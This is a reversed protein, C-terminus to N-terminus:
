LTYHPISVTLETGNTDSDITLEGNLSQVRQRISQLGMSDSSGIRAAKAMGKGNDKVTLVLVKEEAYILIDVETAKAHKIINTISEQVVRLLIIKADMDQGTLSGNDIHINKQYRNDPLASDTITHILQEFSEENATKGAFFWEHSKQRAAEYIKVLTTLARHIKEKTESNEIDLSIVELQHKVSAISASLSDHLDQGLRKQENRIAQHKIEELSMIQMDAMNNLNEIQRAARRSRSAMMMYIGMIILLAAISIIRLWRTRQQKEAESQMLSIESHEAQTFAYLLDSSEAMLQAQVEQELKIAEVLSEYAAKYDGDITKLKSKYVHLAAKQRDGFTPSSEYLQIFYRASDAMGLALYNDIRRPILNVDIFNTVQDSYITKLAEMQDILKQAKQYDHEFKALSLEIDIMLMDNYLMQTRTVEPHNGVLTSIQRALGVKRTVAAKDDMKIYASITPSLVYMANLGIPYRVTGQEILEPLKEIYAKDTEYNEIIKDHMLLEQYIRSKQLQEMLPNEENNARYEQTIKEAYYISAGRKKFLRANNFFLTHYSIRNNSYEPKSWAIRRYRDLLEVLEKTEFHVGESFLKHVISDAKVLYDYDTLLGKNHGHALKDFEELGRSLSQASVPTFTVSLLFIVLTKVVLHKNLPLLVYNM